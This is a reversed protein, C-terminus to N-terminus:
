CVVDFEALVCIDYLAENDLLFSEDSNEVLQHFSLVAEVNKFPLVPTRVVKYLIPIVSFVLCRM